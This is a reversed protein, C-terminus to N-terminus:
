KKHFSEQHQAITMYCSVAYRFLEEESWDSFNWDSKSIIYSFCFKETGNYLWRVKIRKTGEDEYYEKHVEFGKPVIVDDYIIQGEIFVREM